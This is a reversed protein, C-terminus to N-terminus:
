MVVCRRRKRKRRDEEVRPLAALMMEYDELSTVKAGKRPPRPPYAAGRAQADKTTRVVREYYQEALKQSGHKQVCRDYFAEYREDAQDAQGAM